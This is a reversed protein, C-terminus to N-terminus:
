LVFLYRIGNPSRFMDYLVVQPHNVVFESKPVPNFECQPILRPANWRHQDSLLEKFRGAQPRRRCHSRRGPSTLTGFGRAQKNAVLLRFIDCVSEQTKSEGSHLLTSCCARRIATRLFATVGSICIRCFLRLKRMTNPLPRGCGNRRKPATAARAM